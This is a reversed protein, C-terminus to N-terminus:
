VWNCLLQAARQGAVRAPACDPESSATRCPSRFSTAAALNAPLAFLLWAATAVIM